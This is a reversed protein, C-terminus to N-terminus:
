HTRTTLYEALAKLPEGAAGFPELAAFADAILAEADRQSQELGFVAPWTAKVSATDKGATKGLEESTQTVDLIDDVIQFALGAKEGFTRLRAITEEAVHRSGHGLGFLGGAVISTTILAGTKSRHIAEVLAATPAVGESEVDVVQGGIMGPPLGTDLDGMRGIGTGVAMSVDRLIAVVTQAEVPLNAITQFALTQLADGALIATAEGFVVHCTPKGRRLDDNDLAPLDDHILSYTHLMELAAGLDAVGAPLEGAVMRAAELCLIPRLRKGGAFTSHRMARHISHPLTDPTPLLRELAADTLEVGAALLTQVPSVMLTQHYGVRGRSRKPGATYSIALALIPNPVVGAEGPSGNEAAFATTVLPTAQRIDVRQHCSDCPELGLVEAVLGAEERAEALGLVGAGEDDGAAVGADIGGHEHAGVGAVEEDDAVDGVEDRGVAVLGDHGADAGVDLEGDLAEIDLVDDDDAVGAAAADAGEQGAFADGLVVELEDAGPDGDGFLGAITDEAFQGVGRGCVLGAGALLPGDGEREVVEHGEGPDAFADLGAGEGEVAPMELDVGALEAGPRGFGHAEVAEDGADWGRHSDCCSLDPELCEM